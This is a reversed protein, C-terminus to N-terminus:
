KDLAQIDNFALSRINRSIEKYADIRLYLIKIEVRASHYKEYIPDNKLDEMVEAERLAQTAMGSVMLKKHYSTTYEFELKYFKPLAEGLKEVTEILKSSITKLNIEDKMNSNGKWRQIGM